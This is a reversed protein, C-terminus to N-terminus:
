LSSVDPLMNLWSSHKPLYVFPIRHPETCEWVCLSDWADRWRQRWIGLRPVLCSVGNGTKTSRRKRSAALPSDAAGLLMHAQVCVVGGSYRLGRPRGVFRRPRRIKGRKGQKGRLPEHLDLRDQDGARAAEDAAMEDLREEFAPRANTGQDAVGGGP